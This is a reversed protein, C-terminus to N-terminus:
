RGAKRLWRRMLPARLRWQDGEEVVLQRRRLSAGVAEDAPPAQHTQRAFGRLYAWEGELTSESHM